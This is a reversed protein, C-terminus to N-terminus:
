EELAALPFDAAVLDVSGELRALQRGLLNDIRRAAIRRVCRRWLGRPSWSPALVDQLHAEACAAIDDIMQRRAVRSPMSELSARLAMDGFAMRQLHAHRDGLSQKVSAGVDAVIHALDFVSPAWKASMKNCVRCCEHTGPDIFSLRRAAADCVINQLALDGHVQQIDWCKSVAAITARAIDQMTEIGPKDRAALWSNLDRGSITTMILALPSRAVFLPRPVSISWGHSDQKDVAAHLRTLSDFQARAMEAHLASNSRFLKVVLSEQDRWALGGSRARALFVLAHTGEGLLSVSWSGTASQPAFQRLVSLVPAPDPASRPVLLLFAAWRGASGILNGLVLGFAAGLLGWGTMLFWVLGVTSAAGLASAVLIARPRQMSALANSAPTGVIQALLAVALVTVLAGQTGYDKGPYLMRLLGAGALYIAGCFLTMAGALVAADRIAQTRLRSGGGDKWARVARPTLVNIFGALFPNAAAVVSMCAAYTGTASAGAVALSLWNAAYSQMQVTSQAALLWKGLGWSVNLDSAVRGRRVRFAGRALYLWALTPAACGFGLAAFAAPASMGGVAGLWALLTLQIIAVAVDLALVQAMRFHAFAFRRVFERLLSFPVVMALLWGVHRAQASAGGITLLAAAVGLLLTSLAALMASHLLASGSHERDAGESQPRNITFPLAVVAEQVALITVLLTMGLSFAGLESASAWRGVLVVTSFSAGSVVAQDAMAMAHTNFVLRTRWRRAEVALSMADGSAERASGAFSQETAAGPQVM